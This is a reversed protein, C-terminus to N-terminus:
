FRKAIKEILETEEDTLLLRNDTLKSMTLNWYYESMSQKSKEQPADLYDNDILYDIVAQIEKDNCAELFDDVEIDVDVNVDINTDVTPM